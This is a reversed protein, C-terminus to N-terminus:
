FNVKPAGMEPVPTTSCATGVLNMAAPDPTWVLTTSGMSNSFGKANTLAITIVTQGAANTTATMAATMFTPGGSTYHPFADGLNVTGLNINNCRFGSCQISLATNAGPRTFVATVNESSGSWGNQISNISMAQNFTYVVDDGQDPKGDRNGPAQIDFGGPPPLVTVNTSGSAGNYVNDGGYSAAVTYTGQAANQVTCTTSASGNLTSSSYTSRGNTTTCPPNLSTGSPPTVTWTVIGTPNAGGNPQDVTVTVTFSSGAQASSPNTSFRLTPNAKNVTTTTQGQSSTYDTDGGYAATVTYTGAVANSFTCTATNAGLGTDNPNTLTSTPCTPNSGSSAAITWQVPGSPQPDSGKAPTVTATFTLSSGPQPPTQSSSTLAVTTSTAAQGVQLPSALQGTGVAYNGPQYSATVNYGGALAPQIQCIADATNGGSVPNLTSSPCTPTGGQGPSQSFSWQISGTPTPTSANPPVVTATFTLTDGVTAPTSTSTATVLVTTTATGVAVFSISGGTGDPAHAVVTILQSGSNVCTGAAITKFQSAQADWQAVPNVSVTYHTPASAPTATNVTFPTPSANSTGDSVSVTQTGSVNPVTFTVTGNGNGDTTAVNSITAGGMSVSVPHSKAFGTVFVAVTAGVPGSSPFPASVLRYPNPTCNQFISPQEIEYQASQAFGNLITDLTSLSQQTSSSTIATTLGALLATVTLAIIVIAILIEILTDGDERRKARIDRSRDRNFPSM